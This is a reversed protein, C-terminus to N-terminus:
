RRTSDAPKRGWVLFLLFSVVVTAPDAVHETAARRLDDLERQDALGRDLIKPTLTEVLDILVTRWSHGVPYADAHAEVGVDVLGADRLLRSVSRGYHADAGDQDYVTVFLEGLRDWAPHPPDCLGLFDAEQCAVWGGPRVLRRMEAVVEEPRPINL